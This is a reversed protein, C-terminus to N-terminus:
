LAKSVATLPPRPQSERALTALRGGKGGEAEQTGLNGRLSVTVPPYQCM